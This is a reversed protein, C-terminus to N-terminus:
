VGEDSLDIDVPKGFVEEIIRLTAKLEQVLHHLVAGEALFKAARKPCPIKVAIRYTNLIDNM